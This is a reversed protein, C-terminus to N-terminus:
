MVVINCVLNYITMTETVHTGVSVGDVAEHVSSIPSRYCNLSQYQYGQSSLDALFNIVDAIPGLLPNRGRQHCWSAWKAFSSGYNSNTKDRWSALMLNSAESSFGQSTYSQRLYALHDAPASGTENSVGPRNADSGPRAPITSISPLEGATGVSNSVVISHELLSHDVSGTSIGKESQLPLSSNFVLTPQCLGATTVLGPPICRDSHSGPRTELQLIPSTTQDPPLCVFGSGTARDIGPDESFHRSQADLRLSRPSLTVGPRSNYQSAGASTGGHALHEKCCVLELNHNSTPVVTQLSHRGESKHINSGDCQGLPLTGGHKGLNERVSALSPISSIAGPLQHPAGTGASVLYGWNPDPCKACCGLGQQICRVRNVSFSTSPCNPNVPFEQGLIDVMIPRVQEDSRIASGHQIQQNGDGTGSGRLACLEDPIATSQLPPSSNPPGAHYSNSQGCVSSGRKSVSITQDNTQSCRTSDEENERSSDIADNDSLTDRLWSIGDESVPRTYVKQSQSTPGSMRFAQLDISNDTTVTAQGSTSGASRGFINNSSLGGAKSIRGSTENVKYIGETCIVPRITPLHIQLIEGGLSLHSPASPEPPNPGPPICGEPRVKGDLGKAPPPRPTLPPGGDQLARAGCVSQPGKLQDGAESRWREKGGPINPVCLQRPLASDGCNGRQVGVRCGRSNHSNCERNHNTNTTAHPIPIARKHLRAPLGGCHPSGMSGSDASGLKTPLTVSAWGRKYVKNVPEHQKYSGTHSTSSFGTVSYQDCPKIVSECTIFRTCLQTNITM